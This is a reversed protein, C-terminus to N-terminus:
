AYHGPNTVEMIHFGYVCEVNPEEHIYEWGELEIDGIYTGQKHWRVGNAASSEKDWKSFHIFYWNPDTLVNPWKEAVQEPRDCIGYCDIPLDADMRAKLNAMREEVTSGNFVSWPWEEIQFDSEMIRLDLNLMYLTYLGEGHHIYCDEATLPPEDKKADMERLVNRFAVIDELLAPPLDKLM